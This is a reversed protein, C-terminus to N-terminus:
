LLEISGPPYRCDNELMVHPNGDDDIVAMACEKLEGPEDANWLRAYNYDCGYAFLPNDYREFTITNHFEHELMHLLTAAESYDDVWPNDNELGKFYLREAINVSMGLALGDMNYMGTDFAYIPYLSNSNWGGNQREVMSITQIEGCGIKWRAIFVTQTQTNRFYITTNGDSERRKYVFTEPEPVLDPAFDHLEEIQEKTCAAYTPEYTELKYLLRSKVEILQIDM